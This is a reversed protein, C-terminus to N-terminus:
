WRSSRQFRQSFVLQEGLVDAIFWLRGNTDLVKWIEFIKSKAEARDADILLSILGGIYLCFTFSGWLGLFLKAVRKLENKFDPRL